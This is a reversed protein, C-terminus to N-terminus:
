LNFALFVLRWHQPQQTQIRKKMKVENKIEGKGGLERTWGNDDCSKMVSGFTGEKNNKAKWNDCKKKSLVSSSVSYIVCTTNWMLFPSALLFVSVYVPSTVMDKTPTMSKEKENPGIKTHWLDIIMKLAKQSDRQVHKVTKDFLIYVRFVTPQPPWQDPVRHM